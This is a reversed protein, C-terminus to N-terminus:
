GGSVAAAILTVGIGVAAAYVALVPLRMWFPTSPALVISLVAAILSALLLPILLVAALSGAPDAAPMPRVDEVTLSLRAGTAIGTLVTRIVTTAAPGNASALVLRAQQGNVVLAGYDQNDGVAQRAASESDLRHIDFTGPARADLTSQIRDAVPAPAVLGVPLHHPQPSRTATTIAFVFLLAFLLGLGFPALLARRGSLNQSLM